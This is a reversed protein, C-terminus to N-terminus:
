PSSPHRASWMHDPARHCPWRAPLISRIDVAFPKLICVLIFGLSTTEAVCGYWSLETEGVELVLGETQVQLVLRLVCPGVTEFQGGCVRVNGDGGDCVQTKRGLRALEAVVVVDDRELGLVQVRHVPVATATARIVRTATAPGAGLGLLLRTAPRPEQELNNQEKTRNNAPVKAPRDVAGLRPRRPELRRVQSAKVSLFRYTQVQNPHQHPQWRNSQM